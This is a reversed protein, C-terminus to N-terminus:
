FKQFFLKTKEHKGRKFTLAEVEFGIILNRSMKEFNSGGTLTRFGNKSYYALANKRSCILCLKYAQSINFQLSFIHASDNQWSAMKDVQWKTLKGNQWSAMKDVQWKTWKGDQWCTMKDVHWITLKGNQWSAMKDVQWKTLKGNQWSAMKDVQWKTLNGNQWNAM